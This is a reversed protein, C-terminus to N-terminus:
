KSGYFPKLTEAIKKETAKKHRKRSSSSGGRLAERQKQEKEQKKVYRATEKEGTRTSPSAATIDDEAYSNAGGHFSGAEASNDAYQQYSPRQEVHQGQHYGQTTAQTTNSYSSITSPYWQGDSAKYYQQGDVYKVHQVPTSM